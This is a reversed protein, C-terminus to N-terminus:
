LGSGALALVILFCGVLTVVATTLAGVVRSTM